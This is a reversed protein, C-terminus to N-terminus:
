CDKSVCFLACCSNAGFCCQQCSHRHFTNRSSDHDLKGANGHHGAVHLRYRSNYDEVRFNDYVTYRSNGKYDTMDLRVKYRRTENNYMTLENIYTLGATLVYVILCWICSCTQEHKYTLSVM